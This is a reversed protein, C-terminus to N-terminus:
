PGLAGDINTSEITDFSNGDNTRFSSASREEGGLAVPEAENSIALQLLNRDTAASGYRQTVNGHKSTRAPPGIVRDDVGRVEIDPQKGNSGCATLGVAECSGTRRLKM